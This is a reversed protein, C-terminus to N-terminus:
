PLKFTIIGPKNNPVADNIASCSSSLLDVKGSSKAEKSGCRGSRSQLGPQPPMPVQCSSWPSLSAQTLSPPLGRDDLLVECSSVALSGRPTEKLPSQFPSLPRPPNPFPERVGLRLLLASGPVLPRGGLQHTGGPGQLGSPGESQFAERSRADSSLKQWLLCTEREPGSQPGGALHLAQSFAEKGM